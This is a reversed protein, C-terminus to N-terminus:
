PQGGKANAISVTAKNQWGMWAAIFSPFHTECFRSRGLRGPKKRNVWLHVWTAPSPCARQSCTEGEVATEIRQYGLLINYPAPTM